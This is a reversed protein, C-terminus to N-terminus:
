NAAVAPLDRSAEDPAAYAVQNRGAAKARYLARDAAEVLTTQDRGHEPFAAVGISARVPVRKDDAFLRLDAIAGRVREAVEGAGHADTEVLVVILEEGGWRVVADSSRVEQQIAQVTAVLARDGM